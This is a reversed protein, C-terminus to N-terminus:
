SYCLVPNDYNRANITPPMSATSNSYIYHCNCAQSCIVPSNNPASVSEAGFYQLWFCLLRWGPFALRGIAVPRTHEINKPPIDCPLIGYRIRTFADTMVRKHALASIPTGLPLVAGGGTMGAGRETMVASETMVAGRETMVASGAM